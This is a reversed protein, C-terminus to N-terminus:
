SCYKQQIKQTLISKPVYTLPIGQAWTFINDPDYINKIKVLRSINNGYYAHLYDAGLDYDVLNGYSYESMYPQSELYIQRILNLAATSQYEYPWYVFEFVYAYANRAYFASNGQAIAGNQMGGFEIFLM